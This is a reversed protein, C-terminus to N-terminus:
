THVCFSGFRLSSCSHSAQFAWHNLSTDASMVKRAGRGRPDCGWGAQLPDIPPPTRLVISFTDTVWDHGVRQLGMSQLGGPEETWPNELWSYQFPYGNGERPSRGSEPIMGLAGVNHTSEKSDSGGPGYLLLPLIRSICMVTKVWKLSAPLFGCPCNGLETEWSRRPLWSEPQVFSDPVLCSTNSLLRM